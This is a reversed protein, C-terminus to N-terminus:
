NSDNPSIAISSVGLVPFGTPIQHWADPGVGGTFSRWLGGSAAGAFVTSPNQPNFAITLTRGGINFPGIPTWPDTTSSLGTPSRLHARSYQFAQFYGTEPFVSDPYARQWGWFNLTEFAGSTKLSQSQHDTRLWLLILGLFIVLAIGSYTRSSM